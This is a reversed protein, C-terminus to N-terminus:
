VNAYGMGLKHAIGKLKVDLTWLPVSTLAASALLCVDIYGIGKGMLQNRDIFFLVEDNEAQQALPLLSLLDLIQKRNHLNGCALEGIIYPHLMVEAHELLNALHNEGRRFHEIWVSTDVLIM